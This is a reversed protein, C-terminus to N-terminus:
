GHVVKYWGHVDNYSQQRTILTGSTKAIFVVEFDQAYAFSLLWRLNVCRRVNRPGSGFLTGSSAGRARRLLKGEKFLGRFHTTQWFGCPTAYEFLGTGVGRACM